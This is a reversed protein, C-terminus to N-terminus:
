SFFPTDLIAYALSSVAAIMFISDQEIKKGSVYSTALSIILGLTFYKFIKKVVQETDIEESYM